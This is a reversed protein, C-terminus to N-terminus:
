EGHTPEPDRRRSRKRTGSSRGPSSLPESGNETGSTQMVSLAEQIAEVDQPTFLRRGPVVISPGPVTGREIPYALRWRPMGLEDAVAGITLYTTETM